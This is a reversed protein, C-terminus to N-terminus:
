VVSIKSNDIGLNYLLHWSSSIIEVDYSKLDIATERGHALVVFYDNYGAHHERGVSQRLVLGISADAFGGPVWNPKFKILDGKKM